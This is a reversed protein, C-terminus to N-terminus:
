RISLGVHLHTLYFHSGWFLDYYSHERFHGRDYLALALISDDHNLAALVVCALREALTGALAGLEDPDPSEIRTDSITV